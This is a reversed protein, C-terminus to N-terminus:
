RAAVEGHVEGGLGAAQLLLVAVHLLLEHVLHAEHGLGVHGGGDGTRQEQEHHHRDEVEHADAVVKEHHADDVDQDGQQVQGEDPQHARLDRLDLMTSGSVESNAMDPLLGSGPSYSSTMSRMGREASSDSRRVAWMVQPMM